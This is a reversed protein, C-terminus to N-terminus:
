NEEGKDTNVFRMDYYKDTWKDVVNHMVNSMRHVLFVTILGNVLFLDSLPLIVTPVAAVAAAAMWVSFCYGCTFLKQFWSGLKFTQERFPRFFESKIVLEVSAETVFALVLLTLVYTLM